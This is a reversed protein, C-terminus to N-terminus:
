GVTNDYKETNDYKKLGRADLQLDSVRTLLNKDLILRVKTKHLRLCKSSMEPSLFSLRTWVYRVVPGLQLFHLAIRFIWEARSTIFEKHNSLQDQRYWTLSVVTITLSSVLAFGLTLGFWWWHENFYMYAIFCDSGIDVIYSGIAVVSWFMECYTYSYKKEAKKESDQAPLTVDDPKAVFQGSLDETEIQTDELKRLAYKEEVIKKIFHLPVAGSDIGEGSEQVIEPFGLDEPHRAINASRKGDPFCRFASSDVEDEDTANKAVTKTRRTKPIKDFPM